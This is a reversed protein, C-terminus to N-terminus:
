ASGLSRKNLSSIISFFLYLFISVCFIAIPISVFVSSNFMKIFPDIFRSGIRNMNDIHKGMGSFATYKLIVFIIASLIIVTKAFLGAIKMPLMAKIILDSEVRKERFANSWLSDFRPTEPSHGVTQVASYKKMWSGTIYEDSCVKCDKLHDKMDDSLSDINLQESLKKTLDCIKRGM